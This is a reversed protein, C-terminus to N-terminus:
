EDTKNSHYKLKKLGACIYRSVSEKKVAMEEATEQISRGDKYKLTIAKVEPPSLHCRCIKLLKDLREETIFARQSDTKNTSFDLYDAYKQKLNKYNGLQRKGNYIDNIIARYLYGKINKVHRPIPSFVLSLFLDQYLDDVTVPSDPAIKDNIAARIFDGHEAFVDAADNINKLPEDTENESPTM